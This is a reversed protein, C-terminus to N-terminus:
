MKEDGRHEDDRHKDRGRRDDIRVNVWQSPTRIDNEDFLRKVEDEMYDKVTWYDDTACWAFMNMTIASEGQASIGINPEPDALIMPSKECIGHMLEKALAIDSDYGICFQCDVRRIGEKSHNVLISTNIVGNPITITKNDYTCLTTLFLDIDKVKGSVDNVDIYDDRSFPQTIIIMIGGAINALSDKLALAVAAGAAGVVAIITSMQVGLIGLCMTILVIVGVTKVANIVFKYLVADLRSRGLAKGTLTLVIKIIILGAVITIALSLLTMGIDWLKGSEVIKELIREVRTMDEM